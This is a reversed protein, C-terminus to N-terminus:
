QSHRSPQQWFAVELEDFAEGSSSPEEETKVAHDALFAEVLDFAVSDPGIPM